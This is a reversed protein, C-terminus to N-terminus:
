LIPPYENRARLRERHDPVIDQPAVRPVLNVVCRLASHSNLVAHNIASVILFPCLLVDRVDDYVMDVRNPASIFTGIAISNHPAALLLLTFVTCSALLEFEIFKKGIRALRDFTWAIM